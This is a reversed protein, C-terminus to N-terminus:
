SVYTLYPNSTPYLMCNSQQRPRSFFGSSKLSNVGKLRLGEDKPLVIGDEVVTWRTPTRAMQTRKRPWYGSDVSGKFRGPDYTFGSPAPLSTPRNLLPRPLVGM